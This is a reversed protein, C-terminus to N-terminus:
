GELKTREQELNRNTAEETTFKDKYRVKLKEINNYLSKHFDINMVRCCRAIYYVLNQLIDIQKEYSYTKKYALEKKEIDALEGIFYCFVEPYTRYSVEKNGDIILCDQLDIGHFTCYNAIYWMLDAIEEGVNVYDEKAIAELLEPIESVMGYIMHSTNLFSSTSLDKDPFLDPCTRKAQQQYWKLNRQIEM